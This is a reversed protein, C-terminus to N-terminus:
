MGASALYADANGQATMLSNEKFDKMYKFVKQEYNKGDAVRRVFSVPGARLLTYTPLYFESASVGKPPTVPDVAELSPLDERNVPTPRAPSKSSFAHSHPALLSLCLFLGALRFLIPRM